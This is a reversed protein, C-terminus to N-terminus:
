SGGGCSFARVADVRKHYSGLYHARIDSPDHGIRRPGDFIVIEHCNRPGLSLESLSPTTGVEARL